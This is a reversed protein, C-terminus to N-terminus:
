LGTWANWIDVLEWFAYRNKAVSPDYVGIFFGEVGVFIDILWISITYAGM